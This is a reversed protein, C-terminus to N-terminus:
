TVGSSAASRSIDGRGGQARRGFRTFKIANVKEGRVALALADNNGDSSRSRIGLWRRRAEQQECNSLLLAGCKVAVAFV